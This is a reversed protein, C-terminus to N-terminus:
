RHNFGLRLQWNQWSLLRGDLTFGAGEPQTVLLPKVDRPPMGTLEALYEGRVDPRDAVDGAGLSDEVELVAMSNLDIVAHLGTVHHAYPSGHESGRYWVDSWGIRRGWYREPVLAAGYAWMDTLVLSLDTIGRRALAEVMAPHARLVEDCEHWEDVTMNPHQGPLDEWATVADGTLSVVARHARGDSRDWCVVVAERGVAQGAELAPLADKAPERLEISAFRWSAGVGRDRRLIAAAQRIQEATLPDLPHAM